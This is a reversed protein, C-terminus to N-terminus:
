REENSGVTALEKLLELGRQLGPVTIKYSARGPNTEATFYRRENALNLALNPLSGIGLRRMMNILESSDASSSDFVLQKVTLYILASNVQKIKESGSLNALINVAQTETNIDVLNQVQNITLGSKTVLNQLSAVSGNPLVTQAAAVRPDSLLKELVVRFAIPRLDAPTDRILELTLNIKEKIESM